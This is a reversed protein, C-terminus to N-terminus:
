VGKIPHLLMGPLCLGETEEEDYGLWRKYLEDAYTSGNDITVAFTLRRWQDRYRNPHDFTDRGENLNLAREIDQSSIRSDSFVPLPFSAIKLGHHLATSVPYMTSPMNTGRTIQGHHMARLLRKSTRTFHPFAVARYPVDDVDGPYNEIFWEDTSGSPVPEFLPGVAIFDAEEGVGWGRKGGMNRPMDPGVPEVGHAKLPGKVSKSRNLKRVTSTFNNWSNHVEPVYVISAQEWSHDRPQSQAWAAITYLLEYHHGTYRADIDM